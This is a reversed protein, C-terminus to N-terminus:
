PLRSKTGTVTVGTVTVGAPAFTVQIHVSPSTHGCWPERMGWLLWPFTHCVYSLVCHVQSTCEVFGFGLRKSGTEKDMVVWAKRM